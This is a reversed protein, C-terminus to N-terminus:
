AIVFIGSRQRVIASIATTRGNQVLKRIRVRAHCIM